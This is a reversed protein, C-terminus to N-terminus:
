LGDRQCLKVTLKFLISEFSYGSKSTELILVSERQHYQHTLSINEVKKSTLNLCSPIALLKQRM